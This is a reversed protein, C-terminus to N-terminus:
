SPKRSALLAHIHDAVQQEHYPKELFADHECLEAAANSAKAVGSTLIVKVGPRHSRVWRALGFGDMEGPMQVDSFVLDVDVQAELITIAEVPGDAELVTFGCERLYGAISLRILVDDDVVLVTQVPPRMDPDIERSPAAM